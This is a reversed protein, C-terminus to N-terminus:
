FKKVWEKALDLDSFYKVWIGAKNTDAVYKAASMQALASEPVIVGIGKIGKHTAQLLFDQDYWKQDDQSVAGIKRLDAVWGKKHKSVVLELLKEIPTKLAVGFAASKWTLIAMNKQEDWELIAEPSEYAIM